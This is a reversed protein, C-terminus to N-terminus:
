KEIGFQQHEHPVHIAPHPSQTPTGNSGTRPTQERPKAQAAPRNQLPLPSHYTRINSFHYKRGFETLSAREILKVLDGQQVADAYNAYRLQDYLRSLFRKKALPTFDIM